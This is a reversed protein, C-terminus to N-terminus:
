PHLLDIPGRTVASMARKVACVGQPAVDKALVLGLREVNLQTTAILEVAIGQQM